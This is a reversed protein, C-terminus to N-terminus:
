GDGGDDLELESTNFGVRSMVMAGNRLAAIYFSPCALYHTVSVNTAFTSFRSVSVTGSGSRPCQFFRSDLILVLVPVM